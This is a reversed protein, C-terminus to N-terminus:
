RSGAVLIGTTRSPNTLGVLLETSTGNQTALAIGSFVQGVLPCSSGAFTVTTDFVNKGGTRPVISGTLTCAPNSGSLAGDNAVTVNTIQGGVALSWSGAVASQVAAQDYRVDYALTFPTAGSVSTLTGTVSGQPTFTAAVSMDTASPAGAMYDKGTASVQNGSVTQTGQSFGIYGIGQARYFTWFQDDDRNLNIVTTMGATATRLGQATSGSGNSSVTGGTGAPAVPAADDGGGGCAALLCAAAAGMLLKYTM